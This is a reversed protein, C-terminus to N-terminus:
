DCDELGSDTRWFTKGSKFAGPVAQELSHISGSELQTFAKTGRQRGVHINPTITLGPGLFARKLVLPDGQSSTYRHDLGIVSQRYATGTRYFLAYLYSEGDSACIDDEPVFTTFTVIEGALVAQGLNREGIESFNMRWGLYDDEIQNELDWFTGGYNSLFLGGEYVGINTVNFLEGYGVTNYTFRREGDIETFPEKVGYFAQQDHNLKDEQSEFRGTGFYVWRNGTKDLGANAPATIPQGTRLQPHNVPASLNLLTSDLHWQGPNSPDNTGTDLVLRRMKGGWGDVHNGFSTGFYVTDANYDLDWDVVVPKSVLSKEESFRIMHFPGEAPNTSYNKPVAGIGSGTETLMVLNGQALEKLDVAYMVARQSSTGDILATNNAGPEGFASESIPGSGFILHWQNDEGMTIVGPHCTTFGLEPFTLEALLRPPQEPNTIDFVSYASSMKRDVAPDFPGTGKVIDAAIKGGGFRMGAVLVTGWGNPHETSTPDFIRADFIRPELDMYYVHEYDTRTLWYLHPLLNFPVYAWLEAGLPLDNYRSTGDPQRIENGLFDVPRTVFQKNMEDYFGGNFAHLMGGNSGVYLVNRRHRYRRYFETYSEDRYILDFNEAPRAVVTPSSHVIDGLRWTQVMGDDNHDIRRNRFRNLRISGVTDMEQDQGRIYNVIRRVQSTVMNKFEPDSPDVSPRFPEYTHLYAYFRTPDIVQEWTPDGPAAFAQITNTSNPVMSGDADVFTFVHRRHQNQDYGRQTVPDLSNSNLWQNSSWLYRIEHMGFETKGGESVPGEEWDPENFRGGAYAPKYKRVTVQDGDKPPCPDNPDREATDFVLFLDNEIDLRKDGTTDERLNGYADVLLANVQGAWEVTNGLGDSLSPFFISQYVAGEGTRSSSVVSAATGSSSRALIDNIARLLERELLYGDYAEYFTDPNGDNNSDGYGGLLTAKKLLDIANETEQDTLGGFALVSYLVLNNDWCEIDPRLDNIRAYLALDPLYDTGGSPYLCGAGTSENCSDSGTTWPTFHDYDFVHAPIKARLDPDLADVSEKSAYGMLGGPIMADKTSMGDTLLLVFSKACPIQLAQDKDWFPDKHSDIGIPHTTNPYDLGGQVPQQAFYQMAVYFSEALPTWTSCQKNQLNTLMNENFGNDIANEVTGGSRNSGTGLNFWMNGWRARDGVRQLVGALNGELFDQPEITIDKQVRNRYTDTQDAGGVRYTIRINGTYRIEYTYSGKYPSTAPGAASSFHRAINAAFAGSPPSEAINVQNGGGTRSTAKGGMLVKRMVDIRRMSLWNAWNGDWLGRSKDAPAIEADTLIMSAGDLTRVNWNGAAYNFNVKRYKPAFRDGTYEYFYDPNYYGYYRVGPNASEYKVHLVPGIQEPQEPDEEEENTMRAEAFRAGLAPDPAIVFLAANGRRWGPRSVVQQLVASLDTTNYEVEPVWPGPSWTTSAATLDRDSIDSSTEQDLFPAHDIAQARIEVTVDEESTDTATFRLYAETIRAGQPIDVNDFRIGVYHSGIALTDGAIMAGTLPDQLMDDSERQVFLGRIDESIGNYPEGAYEDARYAAANMSGSNDLMIMINPKVSTSVFPPVKVYDAMTPNQWDNGADAEQQIGAWVIVCLAMTALCALWRFPQNTRRRMKRTM